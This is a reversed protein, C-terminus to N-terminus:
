YIISKIIESVFGLKGQGDNETWAYTCVPGQHCSIKIVDVTGKKLALLKRQRIKESGLLFALIKHNYVSTNPYCRDQKTLAPFIFIGFLPHIKLLKGRLTYKRIKLSLEHVPSTAWYTQAECTQQGPNLDGCHTDQWLVKYDGRKWPLLSPLFPSGWFGAIWSVKHVFYPVVLSRTKLHSIKPQRIEVYYQVWM